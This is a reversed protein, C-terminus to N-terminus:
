NSTTIITYLKSFFKNLLPSSDFHTVYWKVGESYLALEDRGRETKLKQLIDDTDLQNQLEVAAQAAYAELERSDSLYAKINNTDQPNYANHRSKDVQDQHKLEHAIVALLLRTFDEYYERTNGNLVDELRWTYGITVYGTGPNYEGGNIGVNSYESDQATDSVEEFKIFYRRLRANLISSIEVITLDNGWLESKLDRLTQQIASLSTHHTAREVIFESSIM